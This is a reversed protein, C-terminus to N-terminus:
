STRNTINGTSPNNATRNLMFTPATEGFTGGYDTGADNISFNNLATTAANFVYGNLANDSSQNNRLNNGTSNIDISVSTGANNIVINNSIACKASSLLTIGNGDNTTITNDRVVVGTSQILIAHSSTGSVCNREILVSRNNGDSNIGTYSGGTITNEQLYVGDCVNADGSDTLIHISSNIYNSTGTVDTFFECEFIRTNKARKIRVADFGRGATKVNFTCRKVSVNKCCVSAGPRNSGIFLCCQNNLVNEYSFSSEEIRCDYVQELVADFAISSYFQCYFIKVIRSSGVLYLGCANGSFLSSNMTVNSCGSVYLGASMTSLDATFNSAGFFSCNNFTVDNCNTLTVVNNGSTGFFYCKDFRLDTCGSAAVVVGFNGRLVANKITINKCNVINVGNGAANTSSAQVSFGDFDLITRDACVTIAFASSSSTWQVDTTLTYTSSSVGVTAPLTSIATPISGLLKNSISTSNPMFPQYTASRLSPNSSGSLNTTTTTSVSPLAVVPLSVMVPATTSPVIQDASSDYSASAPVKIPTKTSLFDEVSSPRIVGRLSMERSDRYFSIM